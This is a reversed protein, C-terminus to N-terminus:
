QRRVVQAARQRASQYDPREGPRVLRPDYPAPRYNPPPIAAVYRKPPQVLGDKIPKHAVRVPPEPVSDKKEEEDEAPEKAVFSIPLKKQPPAEPDASARPLEGLYPPRNYFLDPDPMQVPPPAEIDFAGMNHYIYPVVPPRARRVPDENDSDELDASEERADKFCQNEAVLIKRNLPVRNPWYLKWLHNRRRRKANLFASFDSASRQSTGEDVVPVANEVDFEITDNIDGGAPQPMGALMMAPRHVPVPQVVAPSVSQIAELAAVTNAKRAAVAPNRLAGNQWGPPPVGAGVPAGVPAGPGGPGGPGSPGGVPIGQPGPVAGPFPQRAQYPPRMATKMPPPGGPGPPGPHAGAIGSGPIAGPIPGPAPGPGAPRALPAPQGAYQEFRAGPHTPPAAPRAAAAAPHAGPHIGPHAGPHAGAPAGPVAGPPIRQYHSPYYGNPARAMGPPAGPPLRAHPAPRPPANSVGSASGPVAGPVAGAPVGPAYGPRAYPPVPHAM